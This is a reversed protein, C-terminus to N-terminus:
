VLLGHKNDTIKRLNWLINAQQICIEPVILDQPASFHLLPLKVRM